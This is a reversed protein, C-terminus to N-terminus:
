GQPKGPWPWPELALRRVQQDAEPMEESAQHHEDFRPAPPKAKAMPRALARPPLNILPRIPNEQLVQKIIDATYEAVSMTGGEPCASGDLRVDIGCLKAWHDLTEGSAKDPSFRDAYASVKERQEDTMPDCPEWPDDTIITTASLGKIKKIGSEELETLTEAGPYDVMEQALEPSPCGNCAFSEQQPECHDCKPERAALVADCLALVQAAPWNSPQLVPSGTGDAIMSGFAEFFGDPASEKLNLGRVEQLMSILEDGSMVVVAFRLPRDEKLVPLLRAQQYPLPALAELCQARIEEIRKTMM